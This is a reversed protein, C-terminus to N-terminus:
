ENHVSDLQLEEMYKEATETLAVSGGVYSKEHVVNRNTLAASFGDESGETVSAINLLNPAGTNSNLISSHELKAHDHSPRKGDNCADHSIVLDRQFDLGEGKAEMSGKVSFEKEFTAEEKDVLSNIKYLAIKSPPQDAQQSSDDDLSSCFKATGDVGTVGIDGGIITDNQRSSRDHSKGELIDISAEGPNLRSKGATKQSVLKSSSGPDVKTAELSGPKKTSSNPLKKEPMNISPKMVSAAQQAGGKKGSSMSTRLQIKGMKANSSGGNPSCLGEAKPVGCNVKVSEKPPRALSKAGDFFGIKPSPMRLGSPKAAAPHPLTGHTKLGNSFNNSLGTATNADPEMKSDISRGQSDFALLHDGEVAGSMSFPAAEACIRQSTSTSSSSEISWESISSAPSINSINSATSKVYASLRSNGPQAKTKMVPPNSGKSTIRSPVKLTSTSTPPKTPKSANRKNISDLSSKTINSSSVSSSSETSYCLTSPEKKTDKLTVAVSIKSTATPRPVVCSLKSSASLKALPAGRVASIPRRPVHKEAAVHNSGIPVRKAPSPPIASLKGSGNPLKPHSLPVAKFRNDHNDQTVEPRSQNKTKLSEAASKHLKKPTSRLPLKAKNESSLDTKTLSPIPSKNTSPVTSVAKNSKQISARIDQFLEAELSELTLTDSDLTSISSRMDDEQIGPLVKRGGIEAGGIMSSLEEPDLVGASTFFASDWALSKRMNCKRNRNKTELGLSDPPQSVQERDMEDEAFDALTIGKMSESNFFTDDSPSILDDDEQMFDMVEDFGKVELDSRQEDEMASRSAGGINDLRWESGYYSNPLGLWFKFAEAARKREVRRDQRARSAHKSTFMRSHMEVYIRTYKTKNPSIGYEEMCAVIELSKQFFAARVCIDALTDLLGEDPILQPPANPDENNKQGELREKIENWLILAEGPRKALAIGNALSGYTSVNPYVGNEKMRQVVKKAEELLGLRCYGEVLMNWAVIDVKVRQDKLMEDFVKSALKPQGSMSFAKMLTTYSIKSPAIGRSRMENFYALAGASDDVMICGNILINYSVVDPMISEDETMEKMLEKANKIQLQECYGKLLINYTIRNAPVGIRTMEALVQRARDMSGAKVFASIVTTYTVHDPQSAVDTQFRMAELMRVTDTVRGEKMYGKMLTTYIRSDPYYPKPLLPPDVGSNDVSNPLLKAFVDSENKSVRDVDGAERLVKCLDLRGERMAQVMREATELDGFGVYAAVLSHLTTICLEIEQRLIMELVFVLLDKREARACLKIMVNYSLVDPKAKFEPMEDFLQLFRKCDGLNACANLAANFAATDPVSDAVVSHDPFRRVRRVVSGFLKLAENPGDDGSAALRSVVASWAKVHPLYGSKIMSKIISASYLVQGAKSAAVALLGLSNSDLRHLQGEHRLRQIISQARDLGLKTNQYSLQSVLRSLCTPNPLHPSQSYLLWAEDTNRNRLLNLLAQDISNSESLHTIISTPTIDNTATHLRFHSTPKPPSTTTTTFFLNTTTTTSIPIRRLFPFSSSTPTSTNM